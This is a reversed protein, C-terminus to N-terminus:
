DSLLRLYAILNALDAEKKVGAFSMKTGPLYEKPNVMFGALREVDWSGGLGSMAPSYGFGELSAVPRGVVNWLNPGIKNPGGAEFSHCAGCKKAVKQGADSDAAALLATFGTAEPAPEEELAQPEELAEAPEPVEAPASAEPEVPAVEHVAPGEGHASPEYVINSLVRAGVVILLTALIAGVFQNIQFGSM